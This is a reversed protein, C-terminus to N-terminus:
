PLGGTVDKYTGLVGCADLSACAKRHAEAAFEPVADPQMRKIAFLARAAEDLAGRLDLGALGAGHAKMEVILQQLAERNRESPTHDAQEQLHRIVRQMLDPAPLAVGDKHGSRAGSMDSSHGSNASPAVGTAAESEAQKKEARSDAWLILILVCVAVVSAWRHDNVACWIAFMLWADSADFRLNDYPKM